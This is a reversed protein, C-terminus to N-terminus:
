SYFDSFEMKEQLIDVTARAATANRVITLVEDRMAVKIRLIVEVAADFICDLQEYPKLLPLIRQYDPYEARISVTLYTDYCIPVGATLAERAATSYAKVLGGTGLLTGGFYRVVVVVCNTLERKRIADLTPMGATGAPESDDTYRFKNGERLAYAYVHHRADPYMKKITAIYAIAEDETTVPKAFGLFVSKKEEYHATGESLISMYSADSMM